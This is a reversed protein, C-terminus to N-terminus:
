SQKINDNLSGTGVNALARYKKAASALAAARSQIHTATSALGNASAVGLQAPNYTTGHRWMAWLVGALRRALAIVSIRKGRRQAVAEGWKKLPDSNDRLRLVCWAAQVLMARAYSNGQKTISGVRRRGGTSDESPVLGLYAEVQHANRFRGAEDVVSVFTAAVIPGIGPVTMLQTIVPEARCLQELKGDVLAIQSDLLELVSLLPEVLARTADDLKATRFNEAFNEAKCSSVQRATECQMPDLPPWHGIGGSGIWRPGRVVREGRFTREGVTDTHDHRRPIGGTRRGGRRPRDVTEDGGVRAFRQQVKGRRADLQPESRRVALHSM